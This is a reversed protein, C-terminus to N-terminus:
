SGETASVQGDACSMLFRGRVTAVRGGVVSDLARGELTLRAESDVHLASSLCATGRGM